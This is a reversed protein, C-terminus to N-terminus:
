HVIRVPTGVEAWEYLTKAEETGLIVCGYSVRQGLYGDWLRQGNSLIPLAHIGNQSGGAWYIGLWYPMHLDWTSAYALPIKVLVSYEGAVTPRGPEGTSCVWSFILEDDEWAYLHQESLDIEIRKSPPLLALVEELKAQSGQHDAKVALAAEHSAKAEKLLGAEQRALGEHYRAEALLVAVDKYGEDMEYLPMLAAITAQWDRNHFARYGALYSAANLRAQLVQPDSPRLALAADFHELSEEMRDLRVLATAQNYYAAFLKEEVMPHLPATAKAAQLRAIVIPWDEKAWSDELSVLITEVREEATPTPTPPPTPTPTALWSAAVELIPVNRKDHSEGYTQLLIWGLFAATLLSLALLGVFGLFQGQSSLFNKAAPALARGGPAPQTLTRRGPPQPRRV